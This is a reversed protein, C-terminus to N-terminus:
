HSGSAGSSKMMGGAKSADEPGKVKKVQRKLEAPTGFSDRTGSVFLSPVTIREFHDVRLQDARGPPHLPYGLLVLGLAPLPDTPDAAVMSCISALKWVKSAPITASGSCLM